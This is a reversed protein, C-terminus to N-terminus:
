WTTQMKPYGKSGLGLDAFVADDGKLHEVRDHDQLTLLTLALLDLSLSVEEDLKELEESPTEKTEDKKDKAQEVTANETDGLGEGIILFQTREHDLLEPELPMWRLNRFKKMIHEPYDAANDLSANAPGSTTPNKASLVYSGKENLGLDKQVEGLEPM